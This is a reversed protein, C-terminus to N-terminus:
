ASVARRVANRRPVQPPSGVGGSLELRVEQSAASFRASGTGAQGLGAVQTASRDHHRGPTTGFGGPLPIHRGARPFRVRGMAAPVGVAIDKTLSIIRHSITDLRAVPTLLFTRCKPTAAARWRRSIWKKNVRSDRRWFWGRNTRRSRRCFPNVAIRPCKGRSGRYRTPRRALRGLVRGM